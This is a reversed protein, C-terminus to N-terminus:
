KFGHVSVEESKLHCAKKLEKCIERIAVDRNMKFPLRKALEVARNAHLEYTKM